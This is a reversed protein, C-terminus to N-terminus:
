WYVSDIVKTYVPLDEISLGAPLEIPDFETFTPASALRAERLISAENAKVYNPTTFLIVVFFLQAIFLRTYFHQM